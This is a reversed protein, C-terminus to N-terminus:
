LIKKIIKKQIQILLESFLEKILINEELYVRVPHGKKLYKLIIQYIRVVKM